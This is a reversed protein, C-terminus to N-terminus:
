DPASPKGTYLADVDSLLVLLDADVLAAVLAALRHNDGFRIEETAVTDNENVVPVAGLDLLKRLTRYANRYHARRTVDDVTLLVQGVTRGHRAFGAAYRGILLGQGVSAAAQQTALDRPRRRLRLPALGAAIAGSSVLVVQSGAAVRGAVADVLVDLRHPDLGGAATTLSSSGVKVVVIKARGVALRSESLSTGPADWPAGGGTVALDAGVASGVM